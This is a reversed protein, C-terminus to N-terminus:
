HAATGLHRIWAEITRAGHEDARKTALPPMQERVHTGPADRVRMTYLVTSKAPDGPRIRHFIGADPAASAPRLKSPANIATRYVRTAEVPGVRGEADVELRTEFHTAIGRAHHCSVGCDVHLLGLARREIDLGPIRYGAPRLRSASVATSGDEACSSTTTSGRRRPRPWCSRKSGSCATSEVPM